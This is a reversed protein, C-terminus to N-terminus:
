DTGAMVKVGVKSFQKLLFGPIIRSMNKLVASMGPYIEVQNKQLGKIAADVIKDADMSGSETFGDLTAFKENLGTKSAPPLLEFVKVKTHQLQVRLSQTYSHLGAKSAGYVPSIPFPVLALGSSVNLIAPSQQKKLHPLFIQVMRVPGMVNIEIERTIDELTNSADHLNIIRMEGANNILMNLNPFRATVEDFLKKIAQTDRIDSQFIHIGPLGKKARELKDLNTGTIIVTNNLAVLKKAFEFGFGSSGGTILITNNRVDMKKDNTITCFHLYGPFRHKCSDRM